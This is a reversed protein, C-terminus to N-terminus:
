SSEQSTHTHAVSTKMDANNLPIIKVNLLSDGSRETWTMDSVREIIEKVQSINKGNDRMWDDANQADIVAKAIRNYAAVGLPGIRDEENPVLIGVIMDLLVSMQLKPSVKHPIRQRVSSCKRYGHGQTKGGTNDGDTTVIVSAGTNLDQVYMRPNSFYEEDNRHRDKEEKTLMSAVKSLAKGAGDTWTQEDIM